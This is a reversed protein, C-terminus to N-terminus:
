NRNIVLYYYAVGVSPIASDSFTTGGPGGDPALEAQETGVFRPNPSRFLRYAGDGGSWSLNALGAQGSLSLQIPSTIRVEGTEGFSCHLSCLYPASGPPEVFQRTFRSAPLLNASWAGTAVCPPGSTTTHTLDQGNNRWIVYDGSEIRVTPPVFTVEDNAQVEAYRPWAADSGGEQCTSCPTDGQVFRGMLCMQMPTPVRVIPSPAVVTFRVFAMSAIGAPLAQGDSFGSVTVRSAGDFSGGILPWTGTSYGPETWVYSLNAPDFDLDVAFVNLGDGDDIWLHINIEEGPNGDAVNSCIQRTQAELGAGTMSFSAILFVLLTLPLKSDCGSGFRRSFSRM